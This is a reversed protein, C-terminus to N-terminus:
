GASVGARPCEESAQGKAAGFGANTLGVLGLSCCGVFALAIGRKRARCETCPTGLAVTLKIQDSTPQLCASTRGPCGM